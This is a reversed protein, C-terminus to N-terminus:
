VAQLLGHLRHGHYNAMTRKVTRRCVEDGDDDDTDYGHKRKNAFSVKTQLNLFDTSMEPTNPRSRFGAWKIEDKPQCKHSREEISEEIGGMDIDMSTELQQVEGSAANLEETALMSRRLSYPAPTALIPHTSFYDREMKEHDRAKARHFLVKWPEPSPLPTVSRPFMQQDEDVANNSQESISPLSQVRISAPRNPSYAKSSPYRELSVAKHMGTPSMPTPSVPVEVMRSLPSNSSPTGIAGDQCGYDNRSTDTVGAPIFEVVAVMGAHVIGEWKELPIEVGDEHFIKVRIDSFGSLPNVYCWERGISTFLQETTKMLNKVYRMQPAIRLTVHGQTMSNRM